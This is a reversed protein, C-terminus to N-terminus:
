WIFSRVSPDFHKRPGPALIFDFPMGMSSQHTRLVSRNRDDLVFFSQQTKEAGIGLIKRDSFFKEQPQIFIGPAFPIMLNKKFGDALQKQGRRMLDQLVQGRRERPATEGFNGAGPESTRRRQICRRNKRQGFFQEM